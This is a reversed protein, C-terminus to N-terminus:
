RASMARVRGSSRSPLRENGLRLAGAPQVDLATLVGALHRVCGVCEPDSRGRQQGVICTGAPTPNNKTKPNNPDVGVSELCPSNSQSSSNVSSSGQVTLGDTIRAVFQVEFGKIIFNPGNVNFTTNGLITPDFLSLQVNEWKMYYASANFLLRHEFFESKFGVENNILNDSNYGAPKEYQDSDAICTKVGGPYTCFPM